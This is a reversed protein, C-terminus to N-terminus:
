LSPKRAWQGSMLWSLPLVGRFHHLERPLQREILELVTEETALGYEVIKPLLSRALLAWRRRAVAAQGACVAIELLPRPDPELGADRMRQYSERGIDMYAGSREFTASLLAQLSALIPLNMAFASSTGGMVEQFALIGGSRVCGLLTGSILFFPTGARKLAADFDRMATAADNAWGPKVAPAARAGYTETEVTLLFRRRIASTAREYLGLDRCAM